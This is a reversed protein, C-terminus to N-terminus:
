ELPLFLALHAKTMRIAGDENGRTRREDNWVSLEFRQQEKTYAATISGDPQRSMAGSDQVYGAARAAEAYFKLVAQPDDVTRLEISLLQRREAPANGRVQKDSSGTVISGPYLPLEPPWAAPPEPPSCGGLLACLALLLSFGQVPRWVFRGTPEQIRKPKRALALM